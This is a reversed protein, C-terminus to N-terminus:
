VSAARELTRRVWRQYLELPHAGVIVADNGQLQVAPVGTVGAELAAQHEELVERLIEPSEGREFEAAALGAEQWISRLTEAESIDRNEEFYARLLREHVRQFSDPGLTAAAKAVCQAPISHSPPGADGEWVRFTASDADAAPRLWSRTYRRFKELDPNQRPRLRLLFSRWEIQL